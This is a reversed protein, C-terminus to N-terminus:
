LIKTTYKRVYMSTILEIYVDVFINPSVMVKGKM